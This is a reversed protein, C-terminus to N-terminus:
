SATSGHWCTPCITTSARTRRTTHRLKAMLRAAALGHGSVDGVALMVRGDPLPFVDYWDGGIEGSDDEAPLYRAALDFEPLEPYGPGILTEQLM